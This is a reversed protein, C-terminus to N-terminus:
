NAEHKRWRDQMARAYDPQIQCLRAAILEALGACGARERGRQLVAVTLDDMTDFMRVPLQKRICPKNTPIRVVARQYIQWLEPTSEWATGTMGGMIPYQRFFRQFSLRASM